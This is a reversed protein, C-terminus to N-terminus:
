KAFEFVFYKEKKIGATMKENPLILIVKDSYNKIELGSIEFANQTTSKYGGLYGVVGGLVGSISFIIVLAMMKMYKLVKTQKQLEEIIEPLDELGGINELKQVTYSLDDTVKQLAKLDM